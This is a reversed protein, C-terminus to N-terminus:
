SETLDMDLFAVNKPVADHNHPRVLVGHAQEEARIVGELGYFREVVSPDNAEYVTVLLASGDESAEETVFSAVRTFGFQRLAERGAEFGRKIYERFEDKKGPMIRAVHVCAVM